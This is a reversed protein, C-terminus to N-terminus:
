AVKENPDIKEMTFGTYGYIVSIIPNLINLFAFPAYAVTAIGLTSSMYLGGSNWPVLSSTLTGSDELIRSLNKAKLGREKFVDKYMRGPVVISLYQDGALVNMMIVTIVTVLVLSGTSKAYKLMGDAIAKLMGSKEMIGGFTMAILILSVTWMMGDLGGRSLLSDLADIGTASSFGYHAAGIIDTMGAGQITWAFFAGLFTGGILGPIAPIKLVVMLIVLAPALLLIPNLNFSASLGDLIVTIASADVTNGAYKIGLIAYAVMAILYSPGTTYLMHRIHEFLESGAMAPALNTTDSLPSMKDGFYSGSIIAGGVMGMPMGLGAGVGVLAIGVTGATTWSSGTALSVISCLILTAVLFVSPSLLKLGWFIMTPVIGALIWTGIIMGIIMLILIAGMSMKITEVIGEELEAWPIGLGFMAVAGAVIAAFLIPLQPDAGWLKMASILAVMLTIIPILALGVTAQKRERM